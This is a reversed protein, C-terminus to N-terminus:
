NIKIIRKSKFVLMADEYNKFYAYLEDMIDFSWKLELDFAIDDDIKDFEKTVVDIAQAAIWVDHGDGDYDIDNLINPITKKHYHFEM